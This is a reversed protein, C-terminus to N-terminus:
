SYLNPLPLTVISASVVPVINLVAPFEVTSRAPPAKLIVPAALTELPDNSILLAPPFISIVPSM